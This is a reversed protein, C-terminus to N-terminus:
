LDSTQEGVERHFGCTGSGSGLGRDRGARQRTPRRPPHHGGHARRDARRRGQGRPATPTQLQAAEATPTGPPYKIDKIAVRRYLVKHQCRLHRYTDWVARAVLDTDRDAFQRSLRQAVHDIALREPDAPM